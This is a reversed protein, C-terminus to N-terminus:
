DVVAVRPRAATTESTPGGPLGTGHV